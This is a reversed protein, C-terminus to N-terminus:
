KQALNQHTKLGEAYHQQILSQPLAASYIRVEDILGKFYNASSGDLNRGIYLNTADGVMTGGFISEAKIRGNIYTRCRSGDNTLVVHTWIDMPISGASTDPCGANTSATTHFRHHVYGGNPNNSQGLWFNFNRGPKGVVGTWYDNDVRPKVWVEVTYHLAAATLEASSPVSVYDDTGDFSLANNVIGQVWQAGSVTGHLQNFYNDKATTGSTEDFPWWAVMDAQLSARLSDSFQWAQAIRAKKQAGSYTTLTISALLGIIAIVILLELITFGVALKKNKRGGNLM